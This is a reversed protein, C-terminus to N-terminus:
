PEKQDTVSGKKEWYAITFSAGLYHESGQSCSVDHCAERPQGVDIVVNTAEVFREDIFM